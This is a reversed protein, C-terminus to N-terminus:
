RLIVPVKQDRDKGRVTFVEQGAPRNEPVASASYPLGEFEPAYEDRTVRVVVNKTAQKTPIGSDQIRVDFQFLVLFM